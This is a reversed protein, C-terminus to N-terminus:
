RPYPCGNIGCSVASQFSVYTECVSCKVMEEANVAENSKEPGHKMAPNEGRGSKGVARNEKVRTFWKFGNWAVIVVALTFLVKAISFGFMNGKTFALWPM